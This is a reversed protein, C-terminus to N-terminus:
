HLLHRQESEYRLKVMSQQKFKRIDCLQAVHRQLTGNETKGDKTAWDEKYRMIPSCPAGDRLQVPDRLQM